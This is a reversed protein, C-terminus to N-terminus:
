RKLGNRLNIIHGGKMLTNNHKVVQNHLIEVFINNFAFTSVKRLVWEEHGYFKEYYKEAAKDDLRDMSVCCKLMAPTLKKGDETEAKICAEKIIKELINVSGNESKTFYKSKKIADELKKVNRIPNVFNSRRASRRQKHPTATNENGKSTYMKVWTEFLDETVTLISIKKKSIKSSPTCNNLKMKPKNLFYNHENLIHFHEENSKVLQNKKLEDPSIQKSSSPKDTHEQTLVHKHNLSHARKMHRKFSRATKFVIGCTNCQQISHVALQEKRHSIKNDIRKKVKQLVTDNHLVSNTKNRNKVIQECLSKHKYFLHTIFRYKKTFRKECIKCKSDNSLLNEMTSKNHKFIRHLLLRDKRTFSMKCLECTLSFSKKLVNKPNSLSFALLSEKSYQKKTKLGKDPVTSNNQLLNLPDIANDLDVLACNKKINEVNNQLMHLPKILNDAGNLTHSKKSCRNVTKCTEDIKKSDNQLLNLPDIANNLNILEHNNKSCVDVSKVIAKPVEICNQLLNLPDITIDLPLMAESNKSNRNLTKPTKKTKKCYKQLLNADLAELKVRCDLNEPVFNHKSLFPITTCCREILEQELLKDPDVLLHQIESKDDLLSSCSDEDELPETRIDVICANQDEVYANEECQTLEVNSYQLNEDLYTNEETQIVEKQYYQTYLVHQTELCM